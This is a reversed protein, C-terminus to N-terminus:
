QPWRFIEGRVRGALLAALAKQKLPGDPLSSIAASAEMTWADIKKVPISAPFRGKSRYKADWIVVAGAGEPDFTIFDAGPATVKGPQQIPIHGLEEIAIRYGHAEAIGANLHRIDSGAITFADGKGSASQLTERLIKGGIIPIFVGAGTALREVASFDEGTLVDRGQLAQVLDCADCATSVYTSAGHRLFAESGVTVGEAVTTLIQNNIWRGQGARVLMADAEHPSLGANVGLFRRVDDGHAAIYEPSFRRVEGTRDNTAVIWGSQSMAAARGTPDSCNIPDGGCFAYPNASDLYGEPDPTLFTGTSPELWRDRMYVHGTMPEQFPAAKFSATPILKAIARSAALSATENAIRSARPPIRHDRSSRAAVGDLSQGRLEQGVVLKGRASTLAIEVDLEPTLTFVSRLSVARHGYPPLEFSQEGFVVGGKNRATVQVRAPHGSVEGVVLDTAVTFTRSQSLIVESGATLPGYLRGNTLTGSDGPSEQIRAFAEVRSSCKVTVLGFAGIEGLFDEYVRTAGAPIFEESTLPQPTSQNQARFTFFCNVAGELPNRIEVTTTFVRSASIGTAVPLYFTHDITTSAHAPSSLLVALTVYLSRTM